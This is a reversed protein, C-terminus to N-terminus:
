AKPGAMAGLDRIQELATDIDASGGAEARDRASRRGGSSLDSRRLRRSGLDQEGTPAQAAVPVGELSKSDSASGRKRGRPALCDHRLSGGNAVARKRDGGRAACFSSLPWRNALRFGELPQLTKTREGGRFGGVADLTELGPFGGVAELTEGGVVADAPRAIVDPTAM